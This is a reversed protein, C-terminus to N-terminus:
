QLLLLLLLLLLFPHLFPHFSNLCLKEKLSFLINHICNM